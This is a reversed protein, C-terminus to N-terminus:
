GAHRVLVSVAQATTSAATPRTRAGSGSRSARRTARRARAPTYVLVLRGSRLRSPTRAPWVGAAQAPLPSRRPSVNTWQHADPAIVTAEASFQRHRRRRTSRADPTSSNGHGDDRAARAASGAQHRGQKRDRNHPTASSVLCGVLLQDDPLLDSARHARIELSLRGAVPLSGARQESSTALLLQGREHHLGRFPQQLGARRALVCDPQDSSEGPGLKKARERAAQIRKPTDKVTRVGQDTWSLMGVFTPMVTEEGQIIGMAPARLGSALVAM